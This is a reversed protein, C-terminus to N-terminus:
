RGAVGRKKVLWVWKSLVHIGEIVGERGWVYTPENM